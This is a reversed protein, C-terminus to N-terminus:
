DLEAWTVLFTLIQFWALASSRSMPGIVVTVKAM